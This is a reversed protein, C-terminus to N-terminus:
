QREVQLIMAYSAPGDGILIPVNGTVAATDTFVIVMIGPKPVVIIQPTVMVKPVLYNYVTPSPGKLAAEIIERTLVVTTNPLASSNMDNPALGIPRDKATNLPLDVSPIAFIADLALIAATEWGNTNINTTGEAVNGLKFYGFQKNNIQDQIPKASILTQNLNIQNQVWRNFLTLDGDSEWISPSIVLADVGDTMTGQWLKLPFMDSKPPINARDVPADSPYDPIIDKGQIGGLGSRTGSQLRTSQNADGYIQTTPYVLDLLQSNRRDYHRV